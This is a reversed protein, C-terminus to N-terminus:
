IETPVQNRELWNKFIMGLMFGAFGSVGVYIRWNRRAHEHADRESMRDWADENDKDTM